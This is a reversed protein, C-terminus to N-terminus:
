LEEWHLGLEKAVATKKRWVDPVPTRNPWL